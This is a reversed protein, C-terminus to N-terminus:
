TRVTNGLPIVKIQPLKKVEIEKIPITNFLTLQVTTSELSNPSNIGAGVAIVQESIELGFITQLNLEEGEFLIVRYPMATANTVYTLIILLFIVLIIRRLKKM